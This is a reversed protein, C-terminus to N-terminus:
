DGPRGIRARGDVSSTTRTVVGTLGNGGAGVSAAVAAVEPIRDVGIRMVLVTRHAARLVDLLDPAGGATGADLVVASGRRVRDAVLRGLKGSRDRADVEVIALDEVLTHGWGKSDPPLLMRHLPDSDARYPGLRVLTASGREAAAVALLTAIAESRSGASSGLVAVVQGAPDRTGMLQTLLLRATRRERSTGSGVLRDPWRTSLRVAPQLVRHVLPVADTATLLTSTRSRWIAVAAMAVLGGSVAGLVFGLVWPPTGRADQAAPPDLVVIAPGAVTARLLLDARFDQLRQIRAQVPEDDAPSGLGTIVDDIGALATDLSQANQAERRETYVDLATTTLALAEADEGATGTLLVVQSDEIRSVEITPLDDSGLREAVQATYADSSLWSIEASMFASVADASPGQPDGTSLDVSPPPTLRILTSARSGSGTVAGILAGLVGGLLLGLVLAIVVMPLASGRASALRAREDGPGEPGVPAVPASPVSPAPRPATSPAAAGQRALAPIPMTHQETYHPGAPRDDLYATAEGSGADRGSAPPRDFAAGRDFATRQRTARDFAARDFAARGFRTTREFATGSVLPTNEPPAGPSWSTGNAPPPEDARWAPAADPADTSEADTPATDTPETDTPETDTPESDTPATGTAAADSADAADATDTPGPGAPTRAPAAAPPPAA